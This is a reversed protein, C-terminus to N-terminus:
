GEMCSKMGYDSIIANWTKPYEVYINTETNCEWHNMQDFYPAGCALGYDRLVM